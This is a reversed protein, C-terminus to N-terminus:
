ILLIPMTAIISVGRVGEELDDWSSLKSWIAMFGALIIARLIIVWWHVGCWILPMASLGIFLGHLAYHYWSYDTPKPLFYRYTTLAGFLLGYKLLFLALNLKIGILLCTAIAVLPVGLDRFKTDYGEKGGLRYFIGGIISLAFVWLIM